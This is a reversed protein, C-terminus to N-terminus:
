CMWDGALTDPSYGIEDMYEAWGELKRANELADEFKNRANVARDALERLKTFTAHNMLKKKSM